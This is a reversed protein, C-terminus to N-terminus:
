RAAKALRIRGILGAGIQLVVGVTWWSAVTYELSPRMTEDFV